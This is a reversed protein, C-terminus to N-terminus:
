VLNSLGLGAYCIRFPSPSFTPSFPPLPLALFSILFSESPRSSAYFWVIFLNKLVDDFEYLHFRNPEEYWFVRQIELIQIPRLGQMKISGELYSNM